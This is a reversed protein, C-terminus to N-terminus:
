DVYMWGQEEPLRVALSTPWRSEEESRCAAKLKAMLISTLNENNAQGEGYVDAARSTAHVEDDTIKEGHKTKAYGLEAASIFGHGDSDFLGDSAAAQAAAAAPALGGQGGEASGGATVMGQLEGEAPHQGPSRMLAWFAKTTTAGAGDTPPWLPGWIKM